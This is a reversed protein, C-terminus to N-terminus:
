FRFCFASPHLFVILDILFLICLVYLRRIRAASLSLIHWIIHVFSGTCEREHSTQRAGCLRPSLMVVGAGALMLM